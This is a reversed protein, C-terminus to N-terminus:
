SIGRAHELNRVREPYQGSGGNSSLRALAFQTRSNTSCASFSARNSAARPLELELLGAFAGARARDVLLAARLEEFLRQASLLPFMELRAAIIGCYPDLKRPIAPRPRYRVAQADLDRDLEGSEIWNYVTRRSVGFRRALETKGVGQELYHRLLV